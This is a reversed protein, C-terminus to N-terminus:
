ECSAAGADRTPPCLAADQSLPVGARFLQVWTDPVVPADVAAYGLLGAAGPGRAPLVAGQRGDPVAGGVDSDAWDGSLRLRRPRCRRAGLDHRRRRRPPRPTARRTPSWRCVRLSARRSTSSPASSASCPSSCTARGTRRASRPRGVSSTSRARSRRRARPTPRPSAPQLRRALVPRPRRAPRSGAAPRRRRVDRRRRGPLGRAPQLVARPTRRRACRRGDSRVTDIALDGGTPFLGLYTESVETAYAGAQLGLATLMNDRAGADRPLLYRYAGPTAAAPAPPGPRDPLLRGGERVVSGAAAASRM